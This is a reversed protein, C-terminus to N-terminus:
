DPQLQGAIFQPDSVGPKVPAIGHPRQGNQEEVGPGAEMGDTQFTITSRTSFSRSVVWGANGVTSPKSSIPPSTM